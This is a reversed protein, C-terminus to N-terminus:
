VVSKRDILVWMSATAALDEEIDKVTDMPPEDISFYNCEGALKQGEVKIAEFQTIREKIVRSANQTRVDKPKTENWQATFKEFRKQWARVRGEVGARMANQQEEMEKEISDLRESFIDWRQRINAVDIGATGTMNILLRNKNNFHNWEVDVKPRDDALMKRVVNAENLDELSEYKKSLETEARVLFAEIVTLHKAASARLTMNLADALKSLHEEVASKIGATSLSICDVKIFHELQGIEKGKSKLLRVNAEWQQVETLQAEVIAELPPAGNRGCSGLVVLPALRKLEKEIRKFMQVAHHMVSLIGRENFAPMKKYAAAGNIGLFRQPFTLFDRIKAYYQERLVEIPPRLAPRGLTADYVVEARIETVVEHLSELGRQYQHELAKYVQMDWHNLWAGMNPYNSRMLKERILRVRGTWKDRQRLLDIKFLDLVLASVEEHIRHLRRNDDSLLGSARQLKDLFGESDAATKWTLKSTNGSGTIVQEFAVASDLLMARTSEIIESDMNNYTGAVQMLAVGKSYFKLGQQALVQIDQPISFGLASLQRVERILEVLRDSFNVQVKGDKRDIILLPANSDLTLKPAEDKIDFTWNKFCDQEYEELDSTLQEAEADFDKSTALDSLMARSMLLMESVKGKIQRLWLIRNVIAPMYWGVQMRKDDKLQEDTDAARQRHEFDGRLTQLRENLKALLSDRESMLEKAVVPRRLLLNYRQFEAMIAQPSVHSSSSFITRLSGAVRHEIPELRRQANFLAIEWRTQASESVDFVDISDFLDWLTDGRLTRVEAPDLLERVQDYLGRLNVVEDLRDRLRVMLPDKWPTNRWASGFSITTLRDCINLWDQCTAFSADAVKKPARFLGGKPTHASFYSRLDTGVASMLFSCSAKARDDQDSNDWYESIALQVEELLEGLAANSANQLDKWKAPLMSEVFTTSMVKSLLTQLTGLYVRVESTGGEVIRLSMCLCGSVIFDSRGCDDPCLITPFNIVVVVPHKCRRVLRGYSLEAMPRVAAEQPLDAFDFTTSPIVNSFAMSSVPNTMDVVLDGDPRKIVGKPSGCAESLLSSMLATHLQIPDLSRSFTFHFSHMGDDSEQDKVIRCGRSELARRILSPASGQVDFSQRREM